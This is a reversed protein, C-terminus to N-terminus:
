TGKFLVCNLDCDRAFSACVISSLPECVARQNEAASAPLMAHRPCYRMRPRVRIHETFSLLTSTIHPFVATAVYWDDEDAEENQKELTALLTPMLHPM